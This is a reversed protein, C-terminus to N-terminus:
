TQRKSDSEWIIRLFLYIFLFTEQVNEKEKKKVTIDVHYSTLLRLMWGLLGV